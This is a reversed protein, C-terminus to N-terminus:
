TTDGDSDKDKWCDFIFAQTQRGYLRLRSLHAISKISSFLMALGILTFLGGMGGFCVPLFISPPGLEAKVASLNPDSAWHVIPINQGVSLQRYYGASVQDSGQFRINDGQIVARFQYHVHYTNSDEGSEIELRTITAIAPLGETTLRNYDITHRIYVGVGIFVFFASFLTWFLAFVLMCGSSELPQQVKPRKLGMLEPPIQSKEAVSLPLQSEQASEEQITQISSGCYDCRLTGDPLRAGCSPCTELSIFM